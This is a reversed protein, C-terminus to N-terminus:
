TKRNVKPHLSSIISLNIKERQSQQAFHIQQLNREAAEVAMTAKKVSNNKWEMVKTVVSDARSKVQTVFDNKCVKLEQMINSYARKMDVEIKELRGLLQIFEDTFDANATAM